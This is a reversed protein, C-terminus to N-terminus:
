QCKTIESVKPIFKPWVKGEDNLKQSVNTITELGKPNTVFLNDPATADIPVIVITSGIPLDM